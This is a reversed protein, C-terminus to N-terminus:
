TDARIDRLSSERFKMWWGYQTPWDLYADIQDRGLAVEAMQPWCPNVLAELTLDEDGLIRPMDCDFGYTAIAVGPLDKQLRRFFAGPQDEPGWTGRDHGAVGHM